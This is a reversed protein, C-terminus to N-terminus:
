TPSTSFAEAMKAKMAAADEDSISAETDAAEGGEDEDAEDDKYSPDFFRGYYKVSSQDLLIKEISIGKLEIADTYKKWAPTGPRLDPTERGASVIYDNDQREVGFDQGCITDTMHAASKFPAWFNTWSQSAIVIRPIHYIKGDETKYEEMVDKFGVLKKADNRVEERVAFLGWTQSVTRSVPKKYKGMVDGMNAHIYCDGYPHGQDDTEFAVPEAINGAADRVKFADANRCIASMQSPWKDKNAKAPAPKTPVGMHVDIPILDDLDTLPRLIMREGSKIQLFDPRGGAAKAAAEAKEAGKDFTPM